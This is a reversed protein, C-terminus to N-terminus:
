HLHILVLNKLGVMVLGLGVGTSTAGALRWGTLNVAKGAMWSHIGLLVVVVALGANEAALTSAGALRALVAASLPLFSATVMPWTDALVVGVSRLTPLKGGEIQEGLLEAYEEALWYVILTVVVSIVLAATTETTVAVFIAATVIAGYIGAARRRGTRGGAGPATEGSDDVGAMDDGGKLM